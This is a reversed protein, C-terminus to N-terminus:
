ELVSDRVIDSARTGREMAKEAEREPTEGELVARKSYTVMSVRRAGPSSQGKVSTVGHWFEEGYFVLLAGHDCNVISNLEPIHLHGGKVKRRSVWMLSGTSKVNGHDKHYPLISDVNVVGSTYPTDGIRWIDLSKPATDVADYFDECKEQLMEWGIETLIRLTNYFDPNDRTFSTMRVSLRRRLHDKGVAGFSCGMYSLGYNARYISSMGWKQSDVRHLLDDLYPLARDDADARMLIPLGSVEVITDGKIWNAGRERLTKHSPPITHRLKESDGDFIELDAEITKM